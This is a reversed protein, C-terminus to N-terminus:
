RDGRYRQVFAHVAQGAQNLGLRIGVVAVDSCYAPLALDACADRKWPPNSVIADCPGYDDAALADRGDSIDGQYVCELGFGELHRALDGAGACPEAFTRVKAARLWPILAPVAEFPTPYFDDDRRDFVSRKGM